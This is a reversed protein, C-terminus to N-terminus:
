VIVCSDRVGVHPVPQQRAYYPIEITTVPAIPLSRRREVDVVEVASAPSGFLHRNHNSRRSRQQENTEHTTTPFGRRMQEQDEVQLRGVVHSNAMHLASLKREDREKLIKPLSSIRQRERLNVTRTKIYVTVLLVVFM